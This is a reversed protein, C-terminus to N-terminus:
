FWNSILDISVWNNQMFKDIDENTWLRSRNGVDNSSKDVVIKRGMQEVLNHMVLKNDYNKLMSKEQLIAIGIKANFGCSELIQTIKNKSWGNFFCAIDLFIAQITNPLADFSIKLIGFIDKDPDNKLMGLADKRLMDLADEWQVTSRGCFFSGLVSLALPLGGAYDCVIKSLELLDEQPESRGFAKQCFLQLAESPNMTEVEHQYAVHAGRLLDLHRTTIIVRSGAGFWNPSNALNELHSTHSVDDLILLVKKNCCCNQIIKRGEYSNEIKMKKSKLNSLFVSQLQVEGGDRKTATRVNHLFCSIDFQSRYKEFIALAITTKGVGGLGWIGVFRVGYSGIELLPELQKVKNDIGILGETYLPLRPRFKSWLEDVVTEILKAEFQNKNCDWGSLDSVEKLSDRWSKMVEDGRQLMGHRAFAKAFSGRQHRVDSPNVDYFIPFVQQSLNNRSYLIHKLEDLCWSSSAYNKSIVVIAFQSDEIAQKLEKSIVEGRELEEDDIFVKFGSRDLAHYLHGTFGKRTDEGRFSLFIDYKWTRQTSNCNSSNSSSGGQNSAM